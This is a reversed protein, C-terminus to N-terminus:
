VASGNNKELNSLTRILEIDSANLKLNASLPEGDPTTVTVEMITGEAINKRSVAQLALLRERLGLFDMPNM